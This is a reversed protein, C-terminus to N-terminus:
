SISTYNWALGVISLVILVFCVKWMGVSMRHMKDFLDKGETLSKTDSENTDSDSIAIRLAETQPLIKKWSVWWISTALIIPISWLLFAPEAPGTAVFLSHLIIGSLLIIGGYWGILHARELIRGVLRGAENSSLERHLIPATLLGFGIIASMWLGLGLISVFLISLSLLM